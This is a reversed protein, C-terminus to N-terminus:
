QQDFHELKSELEDIPGLFFVEHQSRVSADMFDSRISCSAVEDRQLLLKFQTTGKKFSVAAAELDVDLDEFARRDAMEELLQVRSSLKVLQKYLDKAFLYITSNSTVLGGNTNDFSAQVDLFQPITHKFLSWSDSKVKKKLLVYFPKEYKSQRDNFVELRIGLMERTVHTEKTEENLELDSPDVVPFTSIGFMRYANEIMVSDQISQGGDKQRLSRARKSPSILVDTNVLKAVSPDLVQHQIVPSGRSDDFRQRKPTRLTTEATNKKPSQEQLEEREELNSEKSLM